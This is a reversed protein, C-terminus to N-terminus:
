GVLTIPPNFMFLKIGLAALIIGVAWFTTVVNVENWGKLEYHHHLPSMLFVRKGRTKFSIVQIIVSMAEAVFVGGIIVLLLETGTLLAVAALAGGLALSGTDGMFVQAPYFNFRLFSTSSAAVAISFIMLDNQGLNYAIFAYALSAVMVTGAALGDLGDTLNVANTTGVLVLFSLVYYAAGLDIKTNVIPVWLETSHGLVNVSMYSVIGAMIIQGLLKQWARLGLNRKLAVKIYDDIFGIVFHGFMVFMALMVTPTLSGSSGVFTAITIALVIIVGGMTPTGSKALHTKPGEERLSQGYKLEHLKKIFFPGSGLVILIATAAALRLSYEEM